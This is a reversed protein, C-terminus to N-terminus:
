KIDVDAKVYKILMKALIVTLVDFFLLMKMLEIFEDSCFKKASLCCVLNISLFCVLILIFDKMSIVPTLNHGNNDNM